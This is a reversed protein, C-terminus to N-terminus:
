QGSEPAEGPTEPSESGPTEPSDAAQSGCEGSNEGTQECDGTPDTPTAAAPQTTAGAPQAASGGAGLQTPGLPSKNCAVLGATSLLAVLALHRM